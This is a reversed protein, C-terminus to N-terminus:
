VFIEMITNKFNSEPLSNVILRAEYRVNTLKQPDYNKSNASILILIYPLIYLSKYNNTVRPDRIGTIEIQKESQIIKKCELLSKHLISAFTIYSPDYKELKETEKLFGPFDRFFIKLISNILPEYIQFIYNDSNKVKESYHAILKTATGRENMISAYLIGFLYILPETDGNIHLSPNTLLINILNENKEMRDISQSMAELLLLGDANETNQMAGRFIGAAESFRFQLFSQLGLLEDLDTLIESNATMYVMGKVSEMGSDVREYEGIHLYMNMINIRARARSLLDGAVYATKIIEEAQGIAEQFKGKRQYIIMLNNRSLLLDKFNKSEENLEISKVLYQEASQLNGDINELVSMLNYLNAMWRDGASGNALKMEETALKRAESLKNMRILMRIEQSDLILREKASVEKRDINNLIKEAEDIRGLEILSSSLLVNRPFAVENKYSHLNLLRVAEEYNQTDNEYEAMLLHIIEVNKSREIFQLNDKLTKLLNRPDGHDELLDRWRGSVTKDLIEINRSNIALELSLTPSMSTAATRMLINIIMERKEKEPFKSSIISITHNNSVRFTSGEMIILQKEVLINLDDEFNEDGSNLISSIQNGKIPSKIVSLVYLIKKQENSLGDILKEYRESIPTPIPIYRLLQRQIEGNGNIIGSEKYYDLAEMLSNFNNGCMRVIDKLISEDLNYKEIRLINKVEEFTLDKIKYININKNAKALEIFLKLRQTQQNRKNEIQFFCIISVTGPTISNLLYILLDLSENDFLEIREMMLVLNKNEKFFINMENIIENVDRIKIEGNQENLLENFPQFRILENPVAISYRTFNISSNLYYRKLFEALKDPANKGDSYVIAASSKMAPGISSKIRSLLALFSFENEM